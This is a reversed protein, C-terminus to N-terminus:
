RSFVDPWVKLGLRERVLRSAEHLATVFSKTVVEVSPSQCRAVHETATKREIEIGYVKGAFIVNFRLM